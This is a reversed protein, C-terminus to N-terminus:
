GQRYDARGRATARRRDTGAPTGRSSACHRLFDDAGRGLHKDRHLVIALRRTARPLRTALEVLMGQELERAVVERPLCGLAGGAAVLRKIAEPSGLEFEVRLSSVHELLWREVAERTGSGRERLAWTAEGLQRVTATGRTLPHGPAAIIVLEDSRWAHVILQPHTQRGEVFGIDVDFGVVAAIVESTNGIMLHVVAGEPVPASM